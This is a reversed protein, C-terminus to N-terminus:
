EVLVILSFATSDFHRVHSCNLFVCTPLEIGFTVLCICFKLKIEGFYTSKQLYALFQVMIMNDFNPKLIEVWDQSILPKFNEFKASKAVVIVVVM